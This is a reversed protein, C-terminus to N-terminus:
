EGIAEYFASELEPGVDVGSSIAAGLEAFAESKQTAAYGSIQRSSIGRSTM